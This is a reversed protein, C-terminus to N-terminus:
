FALPLAHHAGVPTFGLREYFARAEERGGPAVTLRWCGRGRAWAAVAEVLARGVGRRRAREAVVLVTIEAVDDAVYGPARVGVVCSALGVPARADEAVLATARVERALREVRAWALEPEVPYGLEGFLAALADADDPGPARITLAPLPV